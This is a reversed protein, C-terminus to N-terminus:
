QQFCYLRMSQTCNKGFRKTWYSSTSTSLGTWADYTLYEGYGTFNSCHHYTQTAYATGGPLVNTWVEAPVSSGNEDVSIPADLSGDVLDGWDFAIVVDDVRRYPVSSKAFRYFPATNAYSALWAKYTGPLGAATALKNCIVDAALVGDYMPCDTGYDNSCANVIDGTYTGSTIFVRKQCDTLIVCEQDDCDVYGDADNDIGDTCIEPCNTDDACDPDECDVYGDSDNDIGDTCGDACAETTRLSACNSGEPLTPDCYDDTCDDGDDCVVQDNLCSNNICTDITCSNSDDCDSNLVCCDPIPAGSCEGGNCSDSETCDNGDNCAVGNNITTDYECGSAPYCTDHTCPNVDDCNVPEYSCSGDPLCNDSTCLDGDDCLTEDIQCGTPCAGITDGHKLHAPLAKVSITITHYNDPNGPPRHCIEIKGSSEASCIAPLTLMCFFLLFILTKKM